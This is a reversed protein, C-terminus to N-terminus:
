SEAEGDGGGEWWAAVDQATLARAEEIVVLTRSQDAIRSAEELQIAWHDNTIVGASQLADVLAKGMNTIADRGRDGPGLEYVAEVRVPQAKSGLMPPAHVDLGQALLQTWVDAKYTRRERIAKRLQQRDRNVSIPLGELKAKWLRAM